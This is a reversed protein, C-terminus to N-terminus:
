RRTMQSKGLCGAPKFSHSFNPCPSHVEQRHAEAKAAEAEPSLCQKKLEEFYGTASGLESQSSALDAQKQALAKAQLEKKEELHAADSQKSAMDTKSEASFAKFEARSEAEAAKDQQSEPQRARSAEEEDISAAPGFLVKLWRESESASGFQLAHWVGRLLCDPCELQFRGQLSRTLRHCFEEESCADSASLFGDQPALRWLHRYLTELDALECAPEQSEAMAPAGDAARGDVAKDDPEEGPLRSAEQRHAEAKAAEAEPSLCQKKLEEFYGTASGLESQSSALDARDGRAGERDKQERRDAGERGWEQVKGIGEQAKGTRGSAGERDLEPCEVGAVRSHKTVRPRIRQLVDLWLQPPLKTPCPDTGALMSRRTLLAACRTAGGSRPMCPVRCWRRLAAATTYPESLEGGGMALRLGFLLVRQASYCFRDALVKMSLSWPLSRAADELLEEGLSTLAALVVPDASCGMGEAVEDDECQPQVAQIDDGAAEEGEEASVPFQGARQRLLGLTASAVFRMRYSGRDHRPDVCCTRVSLVAEAMRLTSFTRAYVM